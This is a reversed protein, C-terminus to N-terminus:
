DDEIVRISKIMGRPILRMDETFVRGTIPHKLTGGILIILDEDDRALIGKSVRKTPEFNVLADLDFQDFEGWADVWIVEVTKM